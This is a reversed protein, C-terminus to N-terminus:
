EHKRAECSLTTKEIQKKSSIKYKKGNELVVTYPKGTRAFERLAGRGRVSKKFVKALVGELAKV